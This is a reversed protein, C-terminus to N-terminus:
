GSAQTGVIASQHRGPEVRIPVMLPHDSQRTIREAQTQPLKLPVRLGIDHMETDHTRLLGRARERLDQVDLSILEIEELVLRVVWGSTRPDEHEMVHEVDDLVRAFYGNALRAPPSQEPDLIHLYTGVVGSAVVTARKDRLPETGVNRYRVMAKRWGSLADFACQVSNATPTHPERVSQVIEWLRLQAMELSSFRPVFKEEVRSPDTYLYGATKLAERVIDVTFADEAIRTQSDALDGSVLDRTARLHVMASERHDGMSDFLYALVSVLLVCSLPKQRRLLGSIAKNYHELAPRLEAELTLAPLCSALYQDLLSLSVLMDKVEPYHWSAQPIVITWLEKM